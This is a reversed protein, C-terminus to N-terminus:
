KTWLVLLGCTSRTGNYKVPITAPGAYYEIGALASPNISNIDFKPESESRTNSGSVAGEAGACNVFTGDLIVAANCPLMAGNAKPGGCFACVPLSSRGAVAFSGREAGTGRKFGIGPLQRLADTLTAFPRKELDAQTLFRGGAGALRREDFEILKGRPAAKTEVTVDPLSQATTPTLLLDAEVDAGAAFVVRTALPGFGIRRATVTHQGPKIGRIVFDGLSNSMASIKLEEIAVVVGAIPLETSDTLVRGRRTAQATAALPFVLGIITAIRRRVM